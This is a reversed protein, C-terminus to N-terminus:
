EGPLPELEVGLPFPVPEAAYKDPGCAKLQDAKLEAVELAGAWVV